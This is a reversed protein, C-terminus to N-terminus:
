GPRGDVRPKMLISYYIWVFITFSAIWLWQSLGLWLLYHKLDLIPFAVRVVAALTISIFAIAMRAPLKRINRGTHGLAVRAMMGCTMLGIGGIAFLHLALSSAFNYGFISAGKLGFALVIFGYSVYLVWLLPDRWIGLQFWHFLRNIHVLFLLLAFIGAWLNDEGFVEFLWFMLFLLLSARDVWVPNTLHQKLGLRNEIFVPIVRRGLTLILAIVLYFGTYLGYHVGNELYGALGLYFTANGIGLLLIKVLVGSQKFQKQQLLPLGICILLGLLFLVDLAAVLILLHDYGFLWVIRATLWTFFLLGLLKGSLPPTSTWNPVATLLFGAIVALSYGYVMEHAHWLAPTAGNLPLQWNLHLIGFWILM